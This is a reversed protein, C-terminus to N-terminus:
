FGQKSLEDGNVTEEGGVIHYVMNQRFDVSSLGQM